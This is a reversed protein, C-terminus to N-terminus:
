RAEFLFVTSLLSFLCIIIQDCHTCARGLDDVIGEKTKPVLRPSLAVSNCSFCRCWYHFYPTRPVLASHMDSHYYNWWWIRWILCHTGCRLGSQVRQFELDCGLVLHAIFLSAPSIAAGLPPISVAYFITSVTQSVVTRWPLFSLFDGVFPAPSYRILSGNHRRWVVLENRGTM